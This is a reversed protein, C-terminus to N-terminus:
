GYMVHAVASSHGPWLLCAPVWMTLCTVPATEDLSQACVMDRLRPRPEKNDKGGVLGAIVLAAADQAEDSVGHSSQVAFPSFPATPTAKQM